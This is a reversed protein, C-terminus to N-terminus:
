SARFTEIVEGLYVLLAVFVVAMIGLLGTELLSVGITTDSLDTLSVVGVFACIIFGVNRWIDAASVPKQSSSFCNCPVQLRRILVALLAICFISLLLIALLFGFMLLLKGGLPMLLLVMIEGGLFLYSSIRAFPAPLIQFDKVAREFAAFSRIKGLSSAAFILGIAIRSFTLSYPALADPM